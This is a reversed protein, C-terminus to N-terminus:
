SAPPQILSFMGGHPDTVMAFRGVGEMSEPGVALSGGGATVAALAADLDAVTFYVGWHDPMGEPCSDTRAMLGGLGGNEGGAIVWYTGEGMPMGEYSWGFVESYFSKSAEVDSSLLENWSYTDNENCIGAGAIDIPEWLSFTAGTVDAAMAMKGANFVQMPPMVITGGHKEIAAASADVDAVCVYSNWVPRPPASDPSGGMGCVHRGEKTAMTYVRNGDDDLVSESQWGFLACYFAVSADVDATILDIWCPTGPEYSERHM